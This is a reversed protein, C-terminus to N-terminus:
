KIDPRTSLHSILPGESDLALLPTEGVDLFFRYISQGRIIELGMM